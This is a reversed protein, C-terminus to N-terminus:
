SAHTSAERLATRVEAEDVAFPECETLSIAYQVHSVGSRLEPAAIGPFEPRVDFFRSKGEVWFSDSYDDTWQFGVAQLLSELPELSGSDQASVSERVREAIRTVTFAEEAEDPAEDLEVVYLFLKDVGSTDLQFESSIAVFPTAAGRRAKAEVAVRAVEFDKPADLPGHWSSIADSTPLLTLLHRDLFLLEGILGKQEEPSLRGDTGGRLLHHWRWTRAIAIAVAERENSASSSGDVIDLCLRYFIDRQASDELSWILMPDDGSSDVLDIGRLRPLSGKHSSEAAHRLLLLYSGGTARGWFFNWSIEPDIRLATVQVSGEPPELDRWPDDTTTM